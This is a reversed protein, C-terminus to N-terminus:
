FILSELPRYADTEQLKLVVSEQKDAEVKLGPLIFQEYDMYDVKLIHEGEPVNDFVFQGNEDTVAEMVGSSQSLSVTAYPLPIGTETDVVRGSLPNQAFMAFGMFLLALLVLSTRLIFSRPSTEGTRITLPSNPALNTTYFNQKM